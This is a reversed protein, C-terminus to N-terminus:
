LPGSYPSVRERGAPNAQPHAAAAFYQWSRRAISIMSEGADQVASGEVATLVAAVPMLDKMYAWWRRCVDTSAIAQWREESEIEVYAFLAQTQPELFISYSHVGHQVLAEELERWIPNHRRRYEDAQGPHISMRFARRIM